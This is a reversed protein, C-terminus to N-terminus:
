PGAHGQAVPPAATATAQQAARGANLEEKLEDISRARKNGTHAERETTNQAANTEVEQLRSPCEAFLEDGSMKTMKGDVEVMIVIDKAEYGQLRCAEYEVRGLEKAVDPDKHKAYMEIGPKGCAKIALVISMIDAKTYNQGSQYYPMLRHPLQISFSGDGNNTIPLGSLTKMKQLDKVDIGRLIASGTEGDIGVSVNGSPAAGELEAAKQALRRIEEQFEINDKNLRVTALLALRDRDVQADQHMKKIPDNMGKDFAALEKNQAQTLTHLMDKKLTNQQDKDVVGLGTALHGLFVPDRFKAEIATKEDTHQMIIAKLADERIDYLRNELKGPLFEVDNNKIGQKIEAMKAAFTERAATTKPTIHLAESIATKLEATGPGGAGLKQAITSGDRSILKSFVDANTARAGAYADFLNASPLNKSFRFSSRYKDTLKSQEEPSLTKLTDNHYHKDWLGTLSGVSNFLTTLADTMTM